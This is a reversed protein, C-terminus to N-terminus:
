LKYVTPKFQAVVDITLGAKGTYRSIITNGVIALAPLTIGSLTGPTQLPIVAVPTGIFPAGGIRWWPVVIHAMGNDFPPATNVHRVKIYTEGFINTPIPFTALDITVAGVTTGKFNVAPLDTFNLLVIRSVIIVWNGGGDPGSVWELQHWDPDIFKRTKLGVSAVQNSQIPLAEMQTQTMTVDAM